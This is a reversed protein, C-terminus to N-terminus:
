TKLLPNDVDVTAPGMSAVYFAMAVTGLRIEDGDSLPTPAEIRKGQVFTGNRSGLDTLIAEGSTVRLSAHHRSVTASDIRIVSAPHRGLLHQGESVQVRHDDCVLWCLSARPPANPAVSDAPPPAGLPAEEGAEGSFAYGLGHVTRIFRGARPDDGIAARIEAILNSLNAEVVFTDPWLREKLDTKPFVCPRGLVLIELLDYAKRSLHVYEGQKLLRRGGRDLRFDGFVVDV